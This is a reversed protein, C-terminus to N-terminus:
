GDLEVVARDEGESAGITGVGETAVAEVEHDEILEGGHTGLDPGLSDIGGEGIALASSDEDASGFAVVMEVIEELEGFASGIRVPGGELEGGSLAVEDFGGFNGMRGGMEIGVREALLEFALEDAAAAVLDVVGEIAFGVDLGELEIVHAGENPGDVEVDIGHAHEDSLADAVDNMDEVFDNEFAAVGFFGTRRKQVAKGRLVFQDGGVLAGEIDFDVAVGAAVLVAGRGGGGIPGNNAM